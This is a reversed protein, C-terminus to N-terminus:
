AMGIVTETSVIDPAYALVAMISETTLSPYAVLLEDTSAGESLKQLILEVTLRTGRVMPKGLMIGPDSTLFPKYDM